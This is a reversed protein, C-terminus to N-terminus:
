TPRVSVEGSSLAREEGDDLRVLLRAEDDIAFSTAEYEGACLVRVRKDVTINRQRYEQLFDRNPLAEFLQMFHRYVEIALASRPMPAAGAEYLSTAIGALEGCFSTSPVAYNIGIGCILYEFGGSELNSVGETLIGACKKENYLLDNVWKISLELGCVTQIARCVAVAAAATLLGVGQKEASPRLIISLYLGGEPSEFRRGMRGRGGTQMPAIVLAGHPAAREAWLRAQVNTSDPADCWLFPTSGFVNQVAAECFVDATKQLFYGHARAAQVPVGEKRLEQMAKWVAARTVNLRQAAEEGGITEGALLM